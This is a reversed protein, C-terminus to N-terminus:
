QRTRSRATDLRASPAPMWKRRFRAAANGVIASGHGFCAIEFSFSSLRALTALGDELSEYSPALRLAMVNVAADAAFLVGGQRHWLFALQGASHGPAHIAQIGGAIPLVDGDIVEHEIAASPITRPTSAVIQRYLLHNLLGPAPHTTTRWATGTRVMAADLPHMYATAGIAAKLAALSGAHDAHCHTVLIHRIASPAYGLERVARLISDASTISGTDILTLDDDTALLFANVGGLSITFVGPTVQHVAM